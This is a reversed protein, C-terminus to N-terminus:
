AACRRAAAARSFLDELRTIYDNFDYDRQFRAFGRSGMSRALNKDALLADIKEAFIDTDMWPVLFGNEGDHLWDRIGGAEFAVVPLANRMAELGVLGM